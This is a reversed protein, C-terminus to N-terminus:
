LQNKIIWRKFFPAEIEYTGEKIVFGKQMLRKVASYTTGFKFPNKM